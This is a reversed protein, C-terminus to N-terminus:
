LFHPTPSQRKACDLAGSGLLFCHPIALSLVVDVCLRIELELLRAFQPDSASCALMCDTANRISLSIICTGRWMLSRRVSLLMICLWRATAARADSKSRISIICCACRTPFIAKTHRRITKIQRQRGRRIQMCIGLDNWSATEQLFTIHLFSNRTIEKGYSM